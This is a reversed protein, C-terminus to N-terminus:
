PSILVGTCVYFGRTLHRVLMIVDDDDDDDDYCNWSETPLVLFMEM